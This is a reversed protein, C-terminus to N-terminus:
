LFKQLPTCFNRHFAACFCIFCAKINGYQPEEGSLGGFIHLTNQYVVGAAVARKDNMTTFSKWQGNILKFCTDIENDISKANSEQGGCIVPSSGLNAGVAHSLLIPFDELDQCTGDEGDLNIVETPNRNADWSIGGSILVKTM